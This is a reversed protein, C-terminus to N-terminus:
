FRRRRREAAQMASNFIERIDLLAFQEQHEDLITGRVTKSNAVQRSSPEIEDTYIETARPSDDSALALQEDGRLPIIFARSPREISGQAAAHATQEGTLAQSDLVTFMRGRISVVGLVAQPARPLPTPERWEVAGHAEDAFICLLCPGAKFLLLERRERKLTEQDLPGSAGEGKPTSAPHDTQETMDELTQALNGALAIQFCSGSRM